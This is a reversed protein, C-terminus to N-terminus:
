GKLLGLLADGAREIQKSPCPVDAYPCFVCCDGLSPKLIAKGKVCDHFFHCSDTPMEIDEVFGCEPYTLKTKTRVEM